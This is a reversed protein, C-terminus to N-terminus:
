RGNAVVRFVVDALGTSPDNRLSVFSVRWGRDKGGSDRLFRLFSRAPGRIAFELGEDTGSGVVQYRLPSLATGALGARVERGIGALLSPDPTPTASAAARAAILDQLQAIRATAATEDFDSRALEDVNAEYLTLSSRAAAVREWGLFLGIATASLAAVIAFLRLLSREKGTM